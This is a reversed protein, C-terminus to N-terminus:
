VSIKKSEKALTSKHRGGLLLTFLSSMLFLAPAGCIAWVLVGAGLCSSSEEIVNVFYADKAYFKSILLEPECNLNGFFSTGLSVFIPLLLIELPFAIANVAFVLGKMATTFEFPVIYLLCITVFVTCGPIPFVGGYLGLALSPGAEAPSLTQLPLIVNKYLCRM